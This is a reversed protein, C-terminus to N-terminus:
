SCTPTLEVAQNCVWKNQSRGAKKLLGLGAEKYCLYTYKMVFNDGIYLVRSVEQRQMYTRKGKQGRLLSRGLGVCVCRNWARKKTM